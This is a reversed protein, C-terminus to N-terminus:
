PRVALTVYINDADYVNRGVGNPGFSGIVVHWTGGILYDPDFFYPNGWPDTPVSPVYPGNWESFRSDALILGGVATRLNWVEMDGRATRETGGPWMGTDWALQDYVVVAREGTTGSTAAVRYQDHLVGGPNDGDLHTELDRLTLRRDTVIRDYNRMLERKTLIPFEDFPANTDVLHGITERYYPSHAVAYRLAERLSRQQQSLFEERSWKTHKWLEDTLRGSSHSEDDHRHM